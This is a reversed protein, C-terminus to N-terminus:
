NLESSSHDSSKVLCNYYTICNLSCILGAQLIVDACNNHHSIIICSTKDNQFQRTPSISM